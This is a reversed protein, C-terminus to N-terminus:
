VALMYCSGRLVWLKVYELNMALDLWFKLFQHHRPMHTLGGPSEEVAIVAHIPSQLDAMVGKAALVL